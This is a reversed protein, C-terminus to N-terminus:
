RRQNVVSAGFENRGHTVEGRECVNRDVLRQVQARQEVVERTAQALLAPAQGDTRASSRAACLLAEGQAMGKESVGDGNEGLRFRGLIRALEHRAVYEGYGACRAGVSTSLSGSTRERQSMARPITELRARRVRRLGPPLWQEWIMPDDDALLAMAARLSLRLNERDDEWDLGQPYIPISPLRDVDFMFDPLPFLHQDVHRFFEIERDSYGRENHHIPISTSATSRAFECPFYEQYLLLIRSSERWVALQEVAAGAPIFRISRLRQIATIASVVQPATSLTQRASEPSSTLIGIPNSDGARPCM